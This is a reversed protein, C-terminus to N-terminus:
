SVRISYMIHAELAVKKTSVNSVHFDEGNSPIVIWDDRDIAKGDRLRPNACFAFVTHFLFLVVVCIMAIRARDKSLKQRKAANSESTSEHRPLLPEKESMTSM